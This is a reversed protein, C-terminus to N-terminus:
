WWGLRSATSGLAAAALILWTSPVKWRLSALTAVSLMLGTIWHIPIQVTLRVVVLALLALSATNLGDLFSRAAPSGRLLRLLWNGAAVFGFAPLFIGVTAAVAGPTGALLYGIFTATSFLPGPTVQGVAIADLLQRETLWHWRDVLDARLFALLVYGSGFLVSGTKLFFGFIGGLSVPSSSLAAASSPAAADLGPIWALSLPVGPHSSSSREVAMVIMGAAVLLMLEHVGLAGATLAGVGVVWHLRSKLASTALGWFAQLVVLLIVPQVANLTGRLEPLAGWRLYAWALVGSLTAAPLIFAAGAILLGRWGARRHGLFLALETSNPGPILNAAGILDLFEQRTVWGRRRVLVEEMLGIHAAPGGMATAGLQLFVAAVELLRGRQTAPRPDTPPDTIAM